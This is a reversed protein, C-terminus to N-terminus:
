VGGAGCSAAGVCAPAAGRARRPCAAQGCTLGTSLGKPTRAKGVAGRRVGEPGSASRKGAENFLFALGTLVEGTRGPPIQSDMPPPIQLTTRPVHARRFYRGWGALIPNIEQILEATTLPVKRRTLRRVRAMFSQVSRARPIAYLAGNRAGSRIKNAALSLPRAGRKIKYGLFEFGHRVHVIRTKQPHLEVGLNRLIHQAAALAEKAQKGTECTVVWDDAFRTLQYGRERMERDFPTLLINSLLPSVVGGQPTGRESPAYHGGKCSGAKLM